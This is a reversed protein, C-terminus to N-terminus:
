VQAGQLDQSSVPANSGSEQSQRQVALPLEGQTCDYEWHKVFWNFREKTWLPFSSDLSDAGVRIAHRLKTITGARAYHFKKQHKHALRCWRYAQMKFKDDGGLFLGRFLHMVDEVDALEMDNQVALYWPWDRPLKHIWSLSFDLSQLGAAVIDPTCAFYPTLGRELLGDVRSRFLDGDFPQGHQWCDFAGNDLGWREHEFPQVSREYYMRGWGLNQIRAVYERCTTETLMVHPKMERHNM